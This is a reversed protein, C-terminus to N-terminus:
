LDMLCQALQHKGAGGLSQIAIAFNSVDPGFRIGKKILDVLLKLVKSFDGNDCLRSMLTNFNFINVNWCVEESHELLCAAESLSDQCLCDFLIDVAEDTLHLGRSRMIEVQLFADDLFSMRCLAAMYINFTEANPTSENRESCRASSERM